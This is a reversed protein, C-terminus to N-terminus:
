NPPLLKQLHIAVRIKGAALEGGEATLDLPVGGFYTLPMGTLGTVYSGVSTGLGSGYRDDSGQAGLRWSQLGEGVLRELVRGTVGVVLAKDPIQISTENTTGPYVYHDFELIESTTAAGGKSVVVADAVWSVGNYFLYCGRSDDWAKWGVQPDVYLWGGNSFVAIKGERGGWDAHGSNPVIYASGDGQGSPPVEIQTSIVRLQVIADLRVLAENVTVHKQAQAPMVLPLGLNVTTPM